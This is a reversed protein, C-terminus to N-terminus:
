QINVRHRYHTFLKFDNFTNHEYLTYVINTNYSYYKKERLYTLITKLTIKVREYVPGFKVGNM